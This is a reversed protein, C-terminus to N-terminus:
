TLLLVLFSDWPPVSFSDSQLRELQIICQAFLLDLSRRLPLAFLLAYHHSYYRRCIRSDWVVEFLLIKKESTLLSFTYHPVIWHPPLVQFSSSIVSFAISSIDLLTVLANARWCGIMYSVYLMQSITRWDLRGASTRQPEDTMCENRGWLRRSFVASM